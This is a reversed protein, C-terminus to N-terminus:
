KIMEKSYSDLYIQPINSLQNSLALQKQASSMMASGLPFELNMNSGHKEMDLEKGGESVILSLQNSSNEANSRKKDEIKSELAKVQQM